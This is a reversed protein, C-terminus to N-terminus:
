SFNTERKFHNTYGFRPTIIINVTLIPILKWAIYTNMLDSFIAFCATIDCYKNVLFQNIIYPM